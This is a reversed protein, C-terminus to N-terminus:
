VQGQVIVAVDRKNKRLCERTDKAQQKTEEVAAKTAILVKALKTIFVLQTSLVIQKNKKKARKEAAGNHLETNEQQLIEMGEELSDMHSM